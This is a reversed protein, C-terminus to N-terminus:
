PRACHLHIFPAAKGSQYVIYGAASSNVLRPLLVVGRVVEGNAAATTTLPHWAGEGPEGMSNLAPLYVWEGRGEERTKFAGPVPEGADKHTDTDRWQNVKEQGLENVKVDRRFEQWSQFRVAAPKLSSVNGGALKAGLVAGIGGSLALALLSVAYRKTLM